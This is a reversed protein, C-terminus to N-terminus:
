DRRFRMRNHERVRGVAEGSAVVDRWGQVDAEPSITADTWGARHAADEVNRARLVQSKGTATEVEFQPM